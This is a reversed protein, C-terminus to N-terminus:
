RHGCLMLQNSALRSLCFIPMGTNKPPSGILHGMDTAVWGPCCANIVLEPHERALMFTLANIAAKSVSYAQTTWGDHYETGNVSSKPIVRLMKRSACPGLSVQFDRLLKEIGQLSIHPDRFRQQIKKSYNELSSAESSVNVIRGGKKFLPIFTRCM